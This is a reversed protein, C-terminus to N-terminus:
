RHLTGVVASLHLWPVYGLFASSFLRLRPLGMELLAQKRSGLKEGFSLVFGSLWWQHQLVDQQSSCAPPQPHSAAVHYAM